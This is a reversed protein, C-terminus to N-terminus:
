HQTVTSLEGLKKAADVDYSDAIRSSIDAYQAAVSRARNILLPSISSDSSPPITSQSACSYRCDLQRACRADLADQASGAPVM